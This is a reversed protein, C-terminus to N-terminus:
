GTSGAPRPQVRVTEDGVLVARLVRAQVTAEEAQERFRRESISGAAMRRSMRRALDAKEELANLASWMVAEVSESMEAVLTDATYAHGVRCRFQVVTGDEEMWLNGRCEPCSLGSAGDQVAGLERPDPEVTEPEDSHSMPQVGTTPVAEDEAPHALRVLLPGIAEVPLVRAGPVHSIASQPMGPYMAEEPDQVVVTGGLAHIFRLGATGDDLNGSLVVGIVREGYFRAASRFLPDVAPRHGNERPGHTVHLHDRGLVLHRGSPAIYIRGPRIPEGDEAHHAPLIGARSVITPLVSTADAPIHVVVFVAAPLGAPLDGIIRLLPPLGGASAGIVIIDHAV